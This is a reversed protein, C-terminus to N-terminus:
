EEDEEIEVEVEVFEGTDEDEKYYVTEEGSNDIWLDNEEDYELNKQQSLVKPEPILNELEEKALKNFQERFEKDEDYKEKIENMRFSSEYGDLSKWASGSIRKADDLLLYNSLINDYGNVQDFVSNFTVGAATSRSKIFKGEIEFGKVYFKKDPKLKSGAELKILYNSLYL